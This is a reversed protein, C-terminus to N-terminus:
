AVRGPFHVALWISKVQQDTWVVRHRRHAPILVFDGPELRQPAEDGEFLIAAGGSLLVVWEDREQDYWESDATVHGQSIIREIRVPGSEALTEFLEEPVNEPLDSFINTIMDIIVKM